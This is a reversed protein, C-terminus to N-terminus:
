LHHINTNYAVEQSMWSLCGEGTLDRAGKKPHGLLAELFPTFDDCAGPNNKGGTIPTLEIYIYGPIGVVMLVISTLIVVM